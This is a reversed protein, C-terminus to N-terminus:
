YNYLDEMITAKILLCFGLNIICVLFGSTISDITGIYIAWCLSSTVMSSGFVRIIDPDHELGTYVVIFLLFILISLFITTSPSPSEALSALCTVIISYINWFGTWFATYYKEVVIMNVYLPILGLIFVLFSDVGGM